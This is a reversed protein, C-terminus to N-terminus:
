RVVVLNEPIVIIANMIVGTFYLRKNNISFFKERHNGQFSTEIVLLEIPRNKTLRAGRGRM